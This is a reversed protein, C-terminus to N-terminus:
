PKRRQQTGRPSCGSSLIYGCVHRQAEMVHTEIEQRAYLKDEQQTVVWRSSSHQESSIRWMDVIRQPWSSVDGQGKGRPSIRHHWPGQRGPAGRYRWRGHRWPTGRHCRSPQLCAAPQQSSAAPKPWCSQRRPHSSAAPKPWYSQRRCHHLCRQRCPDSVVLHDQELRPRKESPMSTSPCVIGFTYPSLQISTWSNASPSRRARRRPQYRMGNRMWSGLLLALGVALFWVNGFMHELPALKHKCSQRV